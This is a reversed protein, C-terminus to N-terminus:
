PIKHTMGGGREAKSAPRHPQVSGKDQKEQACSFYSPLGPDRMGDVCSDGIGRM